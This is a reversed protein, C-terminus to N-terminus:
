AAGERGIGSGPRGESEGLASLYAVVGTEWSPLPAAGPRASALVRRRRPQGPEPPPVASAALGAERFLAQAFDLRTCAGSGALHFVGRRRGQVLEHIGEALHGAYTPNSTVADDVVVRQSVRAAELLYEALNTGAQGFLWATRVIAGDGNAALVAREAQFKAWGAATEPDPQDSEAYPHDDTGSFVEACSVYFSQAGAERAATALTGAATRCAEIDADSAAEALPWGCDIVADPGIEILLDRCQEANLADVRARSLPSAQRGRRAFVAM